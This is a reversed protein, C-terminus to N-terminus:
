YSILSLTDLQINGDKDVYAVSLINVDYGPSDFAYTETIAYKTIGNRKLVNEVRDGIYEEGEDSEIYDDFGYENEFDTLEETLNIM